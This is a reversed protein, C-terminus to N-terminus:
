LAANEPAMNPKPPTFKTDIQHFSHLLKPYLKFHYGFFLIIYPSNRQIKLFNLYGWNKKLPEHHTPHSNKKEGPTITNIQNIKHKPNRYTSLQM